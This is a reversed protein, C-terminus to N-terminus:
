RSPYFGDSLPPVFISQNGPVLSEFYAHLLEDWHTDETFDLGLGPSGYLTDYSARYWDPFYVNFGRQKAKVSGRCEALIAEQSYMKMNDLARRISPKFAVRRLRTAFDYVDVHQYYIVDVSDLMLQMHYRFRSMDSLYVVSLSDFADALRDIGDTRIAAMQVEEEWVGPCSSKRHEWISDIVLRTLGEVTVPRGSNLADSIDGMAYVWWCYGSLDEAAVYFETCSRLEYVSEVAGMLCPASFLIIDVGGADTLAQCVEDMTLNDDNSTKDWCTGRWGGGHNYFALVYHQAPYNEKSYQLFHQLTEPNGMNIEGLDDLVVPTHGEDVYYLKAPGGLTDQLVVVNLHESSCTQECFHRLPDYGLFDADDYLMLTWRKTGGTDDIGTSPDSGCSSFVFVLVLTCLAGVVPRFRTRIKSFHM